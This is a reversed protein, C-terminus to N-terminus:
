KCDPCCPAKIDKGGVVQTYNHLAGRMTDVLGRMNKKIVDQAAVSVKQQFGDFGAVLYNITDSTKPDNLKNMMTEINTVNPSLSALLVGPAVAPVLGFPAPTGAPAPTSAARDKTRTLVQDVREGKEEIVEFTMNMLNRKSAIAKLNMSNRLSAESTVSAVESAGTLINAIGAVLSKMRRMKGDAVAVTTAVDDLQKQMGEAMKMLEEPTDGSLHKAAQATFHVAAPLKWAASQDKASTAPTKKTAVTEATTSCKRYARDGASAVNKGTSSYIYCAGNGGEERFSGSFAVCDHRKLCAESCAKTTLGTGLLHYGPIWLGKHSFSYHALGDSNPCPTESTGRLLLSCAVNVLAALCLMPLTWQVNMM